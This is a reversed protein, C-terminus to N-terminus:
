PALPLALGMMPRYSPTVKRSRRQASSAPTETQPCVGTNVGVGVEILKVQCDPLAKGEECDKNTFDPDLVATYVM